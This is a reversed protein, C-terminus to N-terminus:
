RLLPSPIIGSPGDQETPSPSALDSLGPFSPVLHINLVFRAAAPLASSPSSPSARSFSRGRGGRRRKARLSQNLMLHPKLDKRHGYWHLPLFEHAREDKQGTGAPWLNQLATGLSGLGPLFENVARHESKVSSCLFFENGSTLGAQHQPSSVRPCAPRLGPTSCPIESTQNTNKSPFDSGAM